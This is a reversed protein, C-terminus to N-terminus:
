GDFGDALKAFEESDFSKGNSGIVSPQFRRDARLRLVSEHASLNGEHDGGVGEPQSNVLRIDPEHNM